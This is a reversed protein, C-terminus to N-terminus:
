FIQIVSQFETVKHIKGLEIFLIVFLLQGFILDNVILINYLHSDKRVRLSRRLFKIMLANMQKELM